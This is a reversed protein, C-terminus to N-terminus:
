QCCVRSYRGFLSKFWIEAEVYVVPSMCRNLTEGNRKMIAMYYQGSGNSEVYGIVDFHKEADMLMMLATGRM